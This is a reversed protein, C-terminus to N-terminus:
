WPWYSLMFTSVIVFYTYFGANILFYKVTRNEWLVTTGFLAVPLVSLAISVHWLTYSSDKLFTLLSSLVMLACIYLFANILLQPVLSNRSAEIEAETVGLEKLWANGFLWPSYWITSSAMMFFTTGIVSVIQVSEFM